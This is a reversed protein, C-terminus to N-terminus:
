VACACLAYYWSFFFLVFDCVCDNFDISVIACANIKHTQQQQQQHQHQHQVAITVRHVIKIHHDIILVIASSSFQCM